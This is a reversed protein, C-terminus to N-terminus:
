RSSSMPMESGSTPAMIHAYPTGPWMVYPGGNEPDTSIGTLARLDPVLIMMHPNHHGWQNTATEKMAFPDTNSGWAGGPALMYGIGVHAIVAPKRAFYGDIWKMWMEDVCMPDNGKSEPMDPFCTWGNSGTRLVEPKATDTAPWDLVTATASIASPAATMANAIKQAKTMMMGSAMQGDPPMSMGADKMPKGTQQGALLSATVMAAAGIGTMALTM